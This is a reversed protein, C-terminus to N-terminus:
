DADFAGRIWEIRPEASDIREIAVVDFRVPRESWAPHRMLLHRTAQVIRRRKFYDISDAASAHRTSSRARVEVVVLSSEDTCVLDLEGLRCRYRRLLTRVGRQALYESASDEWFRGAANGDRSM